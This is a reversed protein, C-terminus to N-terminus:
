HTAEKGSWTGTVLWVEYYHLWLSIWPIVEALPMGPHWEDHGERCDYVCLSGGRPFIHPLSRGDPVDLDPAVVWIRPDRSLTYDLQVFYNQSVPTPRINCFWRLREDDAFALQSLPYADRLANAQVPISLPNQAQV